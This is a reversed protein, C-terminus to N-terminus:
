GFREDLRRELQRADDLVLEFAAALATVAADVGRDRSQLAALCSAIETELEDFHFNKAEEIRWRYTAWDPQLARLGLALHELARLVAFLWAYAGRLYEALPADPLLAPHVTCSVTALHLVALADRVDGLDSVRAELSRLVAASTAGLPAGAHAGEEALDLATRELCALKMSLALQDECL